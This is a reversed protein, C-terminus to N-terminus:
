EKKDSCSGEKFGMKALLKQPPCFGTFGSQILNLGVFVTLLYWWQSIFFGLALSILVMSGALIRIGGEQTMFGEM